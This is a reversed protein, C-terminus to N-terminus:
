FETYMRTRVCFNMDGFRCRVHFHWCICNARMACVCAHGLSCCFCEYATFSNGHIECTRTHANKNEEQKGATSRMNKFACAAFLETALAQLSHSKVGDAEVINTHPKQNRNGKSNMTEEDRIFNLHINQIHITYLM